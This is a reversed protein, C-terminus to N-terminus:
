LIHFDAVYGDLNFVFFMRVAFRDQALINLMFMFVFMMMLMLLVHLDFGSWGCIM